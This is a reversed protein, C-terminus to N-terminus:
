AALLRKCAAKSLCGLKNRIQFAGAVLQDRRKICRAQGSFFGEVPRKIPDPKGM